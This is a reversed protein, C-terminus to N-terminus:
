KEGKKIDGNEWYVWVELIERATSEETIYAEVAKWDIDM